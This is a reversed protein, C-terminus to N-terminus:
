KTAPKDAPKDTPKTAVKTQRKVAWFTIAASKKDGSITKDKKVTCIPTAKEGAAGLQRLAKEVAKHEDSEPDTNYPMTFTKAAPVDKGKSDKVTKGNIANIADLFPNQEYTRNVTRKVPTADAFDFNM